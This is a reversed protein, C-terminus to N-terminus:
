WHFLWFRKSLFLISIPTVLPTILNREVFIFIFYTHGISYDFDKRCFYFRFLHSWHM